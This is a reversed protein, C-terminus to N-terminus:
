FDVGLVQYQPATKVRDTIKSLNRIWLYNNSLHNHASTKLERKFPDYSASQFGSERLTNDIEPDVTELLVALLCDSTLIKRAGEIVEPEFGEVDINSFAKIQLNPKM